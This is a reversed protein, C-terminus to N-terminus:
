SKKSGGFGGFGMMAMMEAEEASVQPETSAEGTTEETQTTEVDVPATEANKKAKKEEKRQRKRREEEKELERRKKEYEEMADLKKTIVPDYKRKAASQLRSKVQDVSSREVRMSYGLKSLHRKGNIHDLYAVSDKLTIECVECYYGNTKAADEGKMVRVTGVNDELTVRQARAKLFARASGVPGAAGEEAAAFEQKNSKVVKKAEEELPLEGNARMQALREYEQKDWTQRTVNAVGKKIGSM